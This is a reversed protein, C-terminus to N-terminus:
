NLPVTPGKLCWRVLPDAHSNPVDALKATMRTVRKFLTSYGSAGLCHVTADGRDDEVDIVKQTKFASCKNLALIDRQYASCGNIGQAPWRDKNERDRVVISFVDKYKGSLVIAAKNGCEAMAPRYQAISPVDTSRVCPKFVGGQTYRPNRVIPTFARENLTEAITWVRNTTTQAASPGTQLLAFAFGALPAAKLARLSLRYIATKM